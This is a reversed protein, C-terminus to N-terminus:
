KKKPKTAPKSTKVKVKDDDADCPDDDCQENDAEMCVLTGDAETVMRTPRVECPNPSECAAVAIPIVFLLILAKHIKV